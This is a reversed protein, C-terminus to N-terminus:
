ASHLRARAGDILGAIRAPLESGSANEDLHMSSRYVIAGSQPHICYCGAERADVTMNLELLKRHLGPSDQSGLEIYVHLTQPSASGGHVLGVLTGDIDVHMDEEIPWAPMGTAAAWEEIVRECTRRSDEM